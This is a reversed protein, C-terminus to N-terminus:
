IFTSGFLYVLHKGQMYRVGLKIILVERFAM